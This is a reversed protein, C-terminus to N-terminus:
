RNELGSTRHIQDDSNSFKRRRYLSTIGKRSVKPSVMNTKGSSIEPLTFNSKRSLQSEASRSTKESIPYSRSFVDDDSEDDNINYDDDDGDGRIDSYDDLRTLKHESEDGETTPTSSGSNVLFQSVNRLDPLSLSPRRQKRLSYEPFNAGHKEHSDDRKLSKMQPFNRSQNLLLTEQLLCDQKHHRRVLRPSSLSLSSMVENKGNSRAVDDESQSADTNCSSPDGTIHSSKSVSNFNCQSIPREALPSVKERPTNRCGREPSPSYAPPLQIANIEKNRPKRRTKKEKRSTKSSCEDFLKLISKNNMKQALTYPSHGKANHVHILSSGTSHLVIDEVTYFDCHQIAYTLASNGDFDIVSIDTLDYELLGEIFMPKNAICSHMLVTRGWSDQVNVDPILNFVAELIQMLDSTNLDVYCLRMLFTQLDHTVDRFDINVDNTSLLSMMQDVDHKILADCLQTHVLDNEVM